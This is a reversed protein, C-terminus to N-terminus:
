LHIPNRLGYCHLDPILGYINVTEENKEAEVQEETMGKAKRTEYLLQVYDDLKPTTKPNVVKVGSLDVELWGAGDLIKEEDGVM